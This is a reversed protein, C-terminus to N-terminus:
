QKTATLDITARAEELSCVAALVKCTVRLVDEATPDTFWATVTHTGPQEGVVRVQIGFHRRIDAAVEEVPARQFVLFNGVWELTAEPDPVHVADSVAGEVARAMEGADLEVRNGAAALAVRGEVVMVRLEEGRAEAEFRTGLVVADGGRTKVSFPYGEMKAVVFYGRGDLTVEREGASGTLRLRSQPALRVITGDRLQVTAVDNSGTM